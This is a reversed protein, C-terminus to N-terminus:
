EDPQDMLYTAIATRDQPTLFRTSMQVVEGMSGGFSDGTPTLGTELSYALNDVNWGESALAFTTIAPAKSDGPLYDNGAMRGTEVMRGGLINRETHCAACHGAGEVLERGRNWTDSQGDIAPTRPAYM